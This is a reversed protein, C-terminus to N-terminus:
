LDFFVTEDPGQLRIDFRLGGDVPAAVLTARRGPPLAALAPDADNAATEDPFYCRTILRDLLGRAFVVVDIHPAQAGGGPAPLPGPKVTVIEYCGDADTDCRGFGRFGAPAPEAARRPETVPKAPGRPDTVPEAPGRPEAADHIGDVGAFQSAADAQWTEILADTVPEGAGDLVQGCLRAAGATRAPVVYRGDPWPLEIHLFPGVTQAPTPLAVATRRAPGAAIAPEAEALDAM